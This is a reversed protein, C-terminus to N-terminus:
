KYHFVLLLDNLDLEDAALEENNMKRYDEMSISGILCDDSNWQPFFPMKNLDNKVRGIMKEEQTLDHFIFFPEGKKLVISILFNKLRFFNYKFTYSKDLDFINMNNIDTYSGPIGSTFYYSLFPDTQNTIKYIIDSFPQSFFLSQGDKNFCFDGGSTWDFLRETRDKYPFMESIIKGYQDIITLHYSDEPSYIGSYLAIRNAWVAVNTYFNKLPISNIYKFSLDYVMLKRQTYDLAYIRDEYIDFDFLNIYEGPGNGIASLKSIFQGNKTFQLISRGKKDLIFINDKYFIVKDIQAIISQDNTELPIEEISAIYDSLLIENKLDEESIRINEISNNKKVCGFVFLLCCVIPYIIIQNKM